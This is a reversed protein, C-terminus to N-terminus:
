GDSKEPPVAVAHWRWGEDTAEKTSLISCWTIWYRPSERRYQWVIITKGNRVWHFQNHRHKPPPICLEPDSMSIGKWECVRATARQIDRALWGPSPDFVDM